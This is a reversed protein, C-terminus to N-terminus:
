HYLLHHYQSSTNCLALTLHHRQLFDIGLIALAVLTDIVVFDHSVNLQGIVVTVRAFGIVELPKGSATVLQLQPTLLPTVVM